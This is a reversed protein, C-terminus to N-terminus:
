FDRVISDCGAGRVNDLTPSGATRSIFWKPVLYYAIATIVRSHAGEQTAAAQLDTPARSTASPCTLGSSAPRYDVVCRVSQHRTRSWRLSSLTPFALADGGAPLLARCTRMFTRCVDAGYGVSLGPQDIVLTSSFHQFQLICISTSGGYTSSINAAFPPLCILATDRHQQRFLRWVPQRRGFRYWCFRHMVTSPRPPTWKRFRLDGAKPARGTVPQAFSLQQHRLRSFQQSGRYIRLEYPLLPLRYRIAATTREPL